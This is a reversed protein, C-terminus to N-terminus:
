RRRRRWRRQIRVAPRSGHRRQSKQPLIAVTNETTLTHSYPCKQTTSWATHLLLSPKGFIGTHKYPTHPRRIHLRTLITGNLCQPTLKEFLPTLSPFKVSQKDKRLPTPSLLHNLLVFLHTHIRCLPVQQLQGVLLLSRGEWGKPATLRLRTQVGTGAPSQAEYTTM